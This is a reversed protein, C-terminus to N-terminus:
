RGHTVAPSARPLVALPPVRPLVALLALAMQPLVPQDLRAADGMLRFSASTVAPLSQGRPPPCSVFGKYGDPAQWALDFSCAGSDVTGQLRRPSLQVRVRQGGFIGNLRLTDGERDVRLDLAAAAMRGESLDLLLNHGRLNGGWVGDTTIAMNVAPGTVARDSFTAGAGISGSPVFIMEGTAGASSTPMPAPLPEPAGACGLAAGACTVVIARAWM